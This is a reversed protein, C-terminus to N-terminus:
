LFQSRRAQKKKGKKRKEIEKERLYRCRKM